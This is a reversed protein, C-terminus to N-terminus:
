SECNQVEKLYKKMKINNANAASCHRSCMIKPKWDHPSTKDKNKLKAGCIICYKDELIERSIKDGKHEKRHDSMNVIKLNEIRNDLGNHNIHHIHEYKTLKRGLYKEMVHRHEYTVKSDISIKRYGNVVSGGKYSHHNKGSQKRIVDKCWRTITITHVGIIEAIKATDVRESYLKRAQEKEENTRKTIKGM